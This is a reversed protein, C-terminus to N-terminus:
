QVLVLELKSALVGADAVVDDHNIYIDNVIEM